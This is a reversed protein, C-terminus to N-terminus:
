YLWRVWDVRSVESGAPVKEMLRKQLEDSVKKMCDCM